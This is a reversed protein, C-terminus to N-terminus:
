IEIQGSAAPNAPSPRPDPAPEDAVLTVPLLSGASPQGLSPLGDHAVLFKRRWKFLLNVNIDPERAIQAVSAGPALTQEVIAQNFAADYRRRRQRPMEPTESTM